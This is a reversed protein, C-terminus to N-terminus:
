GPVTMPVGNDSPKLKLLFPVAKQVWAKVPTYSAAHEGFSIELMDTHIIGPNLPIAAMGRPLEQALSRTLGEIAWKSACYPAVEPSTSRGWGSSFNVIIGSKRAIMAPVFHRIVNATGKINVDIVESFEENSINWLPASYNTIAANNILLDPLQQKALIETAWAKVLEDSAVDLCTFHHPARYKQKLKEVAESSRACGLVTHGLEIFKETMALGLGRSVGTIVILKTM